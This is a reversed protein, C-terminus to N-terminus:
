APNAASSRSSFRAPDAPFRPPKTCYCLPEGPDMGHRLVGGPLIEECGILSANFGTSRLREPYDRGYVRVHSENGFAKMRDASSAITADEYTFERDLELPVQLVAWGMPRLVRFFEKMASRDDLVHELVHSCLIGDFFDSDFSLNTIDASVRTGAGNLSSTWYDVGDIKQLNSRLGYEPAVHLLRFGHLDPRSLRASLFAWIMRHREVSYCVPCIANARLPNGAPLFTSINSQCVTCFRSQGFWYIKRGLRLLRQKAASARTRITSKLNSSNRNLSSARDARTSGVSGKPYPVVPM